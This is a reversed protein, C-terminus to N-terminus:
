HIPLNTVPGLVGEAVLYEREEGTLGLEALIQELVGQQGDDDVPDILSEPLPPRVVHGARPSNRLLSRLDVQPNRVVDDLSGAVPAAPVDYSTLVDVWDALSRTAITATLRENIRAANASRLAFTDLVPPSLWDDWGCALCLRRFFQDELAAISLHAGDSTRYIGYAPEEVPGAGNQRAKAYEDKLLSWAVASDLLAVDLFQWTRPDADRERARLAAVASLAAVTGAALDIVPIGIQHTTEALGIPAAMGLYNIDHGPWSAFSGASGYGSVSVYISDPRLRLVADRGIGLRDAVGPRFGEVVIDAARLLRDVVPRCRGDKLDVWFKEKGASLTAYMRSDLVRGPDGGPPEVAIVRAGLSRLLWTAYPGPLQLSFDAVLVGSLAGRVTM